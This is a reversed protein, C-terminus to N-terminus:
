HTAIGLGTMKKRLTNRNIGPVEATKVQNGSTAKLAAMILPKEIASTVRAHLDGSAKNTTAHALADAILRDALDALQTTLNQTTSTTTTTTKAPLHATIHHADIVKDDVLLLVRRLVNELERVNGPWDYGELCQLAQPTLPKEALGATVARAVLHKTLEAIDDTRERLPPITVPVVNLRYFLDERFLGDRVLDAPNKHTASIIRAHTTIPKQGGIRTFVGDQLVRLLRTQAPLPMDGIEDLFLTGGSAEEFRGIKRSDAGTFAGKEYGFLEAEILEQPIAAMNIAIFPAHRRNGLNHLARAVLEKGTGSEGRIMVTTDTPVLRAITRYIEQMAPSKGIIPSADAKAQAQTIAPTPNTTTKPKAKAKSTTPTKKVCRSICAILSDLPFPKPLYADISAQKQTKVATLLTAQASMVIIALDPHKTRLQPIKELANGDPFLMDIVLVSFPPPSATTPTALHTDIEALTAAPTVSFGARTLAEGLVLRLSPDDDALLVSLQLQAVRTTSATPAATQSATPTAIPTTPNSPTM